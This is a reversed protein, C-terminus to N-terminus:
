DARGADTLTVKATGGEGTTATDVVAHGANVADLGEEMTLMLGADGADAIMALLDAGRATVPQREAPAPAPAPARAGSLSDGAAVLAAVNAEIASTMLMNKM